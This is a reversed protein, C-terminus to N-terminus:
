RRPAPPAAASVRCAPADEPHAEITRLSDDVEAALPGGAAAARAPTLIALAETACGRQSLLLALNNRAAIQSPAIRLVERYAEEAAAAHGLVSQNNALALWALPEAPWRRVAAEFAPAVRAPDGLSELAVAAELYRAANPDAPLAGPRLAIFAWNDAREWTGLFRRAALRQREVDGSRLLFEDPEREYGIVVAYHWLPHSASGFNQLVLVPTGQELERLLAPLSPELPYAIRGHRRASTMLEAQLSGELGPVYVERALADANTENGSAVLVTALAAPGCHHETQPFFPTATIEVRSQTAGAETLLSTSCGTVALLLALAGTARAAARIM